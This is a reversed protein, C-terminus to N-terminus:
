DKKPEEAKPETKKPEDKKGATKKAKMEAEHKEVASKLEQKQADTLVATGEAVRQEELKKIQEDIKTEIEDIKARQEDSLSTLLSFPQKLKIKRAASKEQKMEKRPEESKKTEEAVVFTSAGIVLAASLAAWKLANM